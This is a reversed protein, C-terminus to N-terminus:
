FLILMGRMRKKNHQMELKTLPSLACKDLMKCLFNLGKQNILCLVAVIHVLYEKTNGQSLINMTFVTGDSLAVKLNELSEKTTLQYTPPVYLFPPQSSLQGKKCKSGKLGNPNKLITTMNAHQWLTM